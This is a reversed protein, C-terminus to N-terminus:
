TARNIAVGLITSIAAISAATFILRGWGGDGTGGVEEEKSEFREIFSRQLFVFLLIYRNYFRTNYVIHLKM